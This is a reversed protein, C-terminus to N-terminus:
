RKRGVERGLKVKMKIKCGEERWKRGFGLILVM